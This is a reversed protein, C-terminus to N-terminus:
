KVNYATWVVSWIEFCMALVTGNAEFMCDHIGAYVAWMIVTM